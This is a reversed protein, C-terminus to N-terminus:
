RRMVSTNREMLADPAFPKVLTPDQMTALTNKDDHRTEYLLINLRAPACEDTYLFHLGGKKEM